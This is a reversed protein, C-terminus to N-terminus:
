YPGTAEVVNVNSACSSPERGSAPANRGGELMKMTSPSSDSIGWVKPLRFSFCAEMVRVVVGPM